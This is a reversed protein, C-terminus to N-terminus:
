VKKLYNPVLFCDEPILRQKLLVNNIIDDYYNTKIDNTKVDNSNQHTKIIVKLMDNSTKKSAAVTPYKVNL